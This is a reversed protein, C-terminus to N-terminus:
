VKLRTDSHLFLTAYENLEKINHKKLIPKVAWSVQKALSTIEEKEEDIYAKNFQELQNKALFILSIIIFAILLVNWILIKDRKKM